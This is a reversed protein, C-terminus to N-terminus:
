SPVSHPTGPAGGSDGGGGERGGNDDVGENETVGSNNNRLIKSQPVFNSGLIPFFSQRAHM